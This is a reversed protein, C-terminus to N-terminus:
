CMLIQAKWYVLKLGQALQFRCYFELKLESHGQNSVVMLLLVLLHLVM